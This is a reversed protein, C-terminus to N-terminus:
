YPQITALERARQIDRGIQESLASVSEFKREERLRSFFRVTLRRDYLDGTWDLLHAEVSRPGADFTPRTGINVVAPPQCTLDGEITATCYYVGNCPVVLDQEVRVNATPVGIARGRGAGSVVNGSLEYPRGLLRGALAVDGHLGLAQRIRTSSVPAGDLHTLPAALLEWGAGTGIAALEEVGAERGRGIRFNEGVVLLEIPISSTVQDLFDRASMSAVSSDFDLVVTEEVGYHRICALRAQLPQLYQFVPDGGLVTRPHPWFTLAACRLTRLRAEQLALSLLAQHGLHVGDFAGITVVYGRLGTMKM